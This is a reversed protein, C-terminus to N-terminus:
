FNLLFFLYCFFDKLYKITKLKNIFLNRYKIKLFDYSFDKQM